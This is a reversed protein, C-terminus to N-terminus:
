SLEEDHPKSFAAIIGPTCILVNRKVRGPGIEIAFTLKRVVHLISALMWRIATLPDYPAASEPCARDFQFGAKTALERLTRITYLRVHTMDDYRCHGAWPSDANPTALVLTGGPRLARFLLRIFAGAEDLTLHEIVHMCIIWDASNPNGALYSMCNTLHITARVTKRCIEVQDASVDVGTCNHYGREELMKLFHGAGCGVDLVAARRDKPLLRRYQWAYKRGMRKYEAEDFAYMTSYHTSAYDAYRDYSANGDDFTEGPSPANKLKEAM